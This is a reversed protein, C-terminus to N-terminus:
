ALGLLQRLRGHDLAHVKAGKLGTMTEAAVLANLIAEEVAEVTAAFIPDLADNPLYSLRPPPSAAGETVPMGTSFALFIDGSGNGGSTGTRGMGLGARRAVRQLQIPLLPADTAVLIIISGQEGSFVSHETIQRGVPVGRVTLQSRRGFNAQVLAGLHYREAGIAVQRSATGTGGKFEYCIMGTGGGVNGEALPGGAAQELAEFVVAETVHFGNMDNLFADCTEAVVPLLWPDAVGDYAPHRTLWRTVAHHTMGVGHTNTICVPGLFHGAEAIWHSGTMEGNGNFSSLGAWVSDLAGAKGHPFVATVGTRAPGKDHIVTAAGVEVGPVDTIANFAGPEGEFAIGLGRARPRGDPLTTTPDSM